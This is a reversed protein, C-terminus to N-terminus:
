APESMAMANWGGERYSRDVLEVWDNMAPFSWTTAGFRSPGIGGLM